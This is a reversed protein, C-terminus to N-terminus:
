KEYDFYDFDKPYLNYIQEKQSPNLEKIKNQFFINKFQLDKLLSPQTLLSTLGRKLGKGSKNAHPLKKGQLGTKELVYKIDESINELKGVFDVLCVGKNSYIYNYQPQFFFHGEKVKKSLEKKVFASFSIINSYGLYHYLSIARAYPNRVFSFTFYAAYTEADIYGLAVYENATLHALRDPGKEHSKKKRLLLGQRTEWTLGLDELFIAEISQGAVKPIHVFLTNHKPSIM